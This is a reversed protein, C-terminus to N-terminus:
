VFGFLVFHKCLLGNDSLRDLVYLPLIYCPVRLEM